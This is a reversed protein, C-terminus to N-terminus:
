QSNWFAALANEKYEAETKLADIFSHEIHRLKRGKPWAVRTVSEPFFASLDRYLLKTHGRSGIAMNAIVGCGLGLRVYTKLVDTDAAAMVINMECGAAEFSDQIKGRDTIGFVYTLLPYEAIRQLTLEGTALDHGVPLALAHNWRYLKVNEVTELDALLETCVVFDIEDNAMMGVLQRPNGQQLYIKVKPFAKRFAMFANPLFHVAQAHTTGIRLDGVTTENHDSAIRYINAEATLLRDFEPLLQDLLATSKILRKGKREFLPGGFEEELMAIQRSVGSQVTNSEEATRSVNMENKLLLRVLKAQSLKM